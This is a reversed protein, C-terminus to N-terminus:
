LVDLYNTEIPLGCERFVQEGESINRGDEIHSNWNGLDHTDLQM